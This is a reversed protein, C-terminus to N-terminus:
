VLSIIGRFLRFTDNLLDVFVNIAGMNALSCQTVSYYGLTGVLGRHPLLGLLVHIMIVYALLKAINDM